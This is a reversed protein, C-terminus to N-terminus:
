GCAKQVLRQMAKENREFSEVMKLQVRARDVNHRERHTKFYRDGQLHDTLFRIGIEFTILKASFGLHDKETGNLVDRASALYGNVIAEFLDQRM